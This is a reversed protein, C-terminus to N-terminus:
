NCHVSEKATETIDLEPNSHGGGSSRESVPISCGVGHRERGRCRCALIKRVLVVQSARTNTACPSIQEATHPVKTRRGPISGKNRANYPPNKVM